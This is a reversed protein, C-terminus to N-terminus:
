RDGKNEVAVQKNLIMPLMAQHLEKLNSHEIGLNKRTETLNVLGVFTGWLYDAAVRPHGPRFLGDEMGEKVIKTLLIFNKGSLVGVEKSTAKSFAGAFSPDHLFLLAHCYMPNEEYFEFFFNWVIEIREGASIRRAAIEAIREHMLAMADFVIAVFLEEKSRFYRYLTGVALASEEAIQDMSTKVFGNRTFVTVAARLIEKRRTEKELEKRNKRKLAPM